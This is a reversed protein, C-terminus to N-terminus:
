RGSRDIVTSSAQQTGLMVVDQINVHTPRTAMFYIAEAVDVSTLPQFGEYVKAGREKDGDFRVEAFETEEVHAPAVQGIRINYSHLDLRMAKTLADVAHKTACYVNGNPYVEKGATSCVNIIQGQQRAVMYPSVARTLYLLGKINTDIMEEWHELRGQHIPDLGKAKGANNILIDINKWDEPLQNIANEVAEVQRVDFNLSHVDTHFEDQLGKEIADLRDSRRGTIIVRFGNRAFIEATAKGIGSTAGTVMVTKGNGPRQQKLKEQEEDRAKIMEELRFINEKLAALADREIILESNSKEMTAETTEMEVTNEPSAPTTIAAEQNEKIHEEVVGNQSKPEVAIREVPEEAVPEPEAPATLGFALDNEPTEVEPNLAKAKLYAEQAKELNGQTHYLIALDYYAFPHNPQLRLTEMFEIAAADLAKQHENLLMAYQYHADANEPHQAIAQRFEMMAHDQTDEFQHALILGLRYHVEPFKSDIAAVDQYFGVAEDFDEEIESLEGSLFLAGTHKSDYKLLTALQSRAESFDDEHQVLLHALQYRMALHEPHQQLANQLEAIAKETQGGSVWDHLNELIYNPDLASVLEEEEDEEEEEEETAYVAGNQHIEEPGSSSEAPIDDEVLIHEEIEEEIEEVEEEIQYSTDSVIEEETEDPVLDGDDEIEEEPDDPLMDMGPIDQIDVPPEDDMPESNRNSAAEVAEAPVRDMVRSARAKKLKEWGNIDGIFRFIMEYDTEELEEYTVHETNRLLRLFESTEGSIARVSRLHDSFTEEDIEDELERKQRRLDLYQDQWYNIYQIIDSIREFQTPVAYANRSEDQRVGDAVIPLVADRNDQMFERGNVMCQASRLFNDTVLLLIPGSHNEM